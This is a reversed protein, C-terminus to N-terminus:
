APRVFKQHGRPCQKIKMITSNRKGDWGDFRVNTEFLTHELLNGCTTCNRRKYFQDESVYGNPDMEPVFVNMFVYIMITSVLMIIFLQPDIDM